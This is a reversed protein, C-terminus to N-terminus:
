LHEISVTGSDAPGNSLWVWPKRLLNCCHFHLRGSRADLFDTLGDFTEEMPFLRIGRPPVVPTRAVRVEGRWNTISVRAVGSSFFPIRPGFYNNALILYRLRSVRDSFLNGTQMRQISPINVSSGSNHFISRDGAPSIIEGTFESSVLGGGWGPPLTTPILRVYVTGVTQVAADDTALVGGVDLHLSGCPPLLERHTFKRNGNEDYFTIEAIEHAEFGDGVIHTNYYNFQNVVTRFGGGTVALGINPTFLRAHGPLAIMTVSM